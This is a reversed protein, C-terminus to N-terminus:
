DGPVFYRRFQIKTQCTLVYGENSTVIHGKKTESLTTLMTFGVSEM